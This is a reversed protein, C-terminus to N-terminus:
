NKNVYGLKKLIKGCLIIVVVSLAILSILSILIVLNISTISIINGMFISILSISVLLVSLLIKHFLNFPYCVKILLIFSIAVTSLVALTSFEQSSLVLFSRSFVLIAVNLFVAIGTPLAKQIVNKLFSGRVLEKNPELALLFSPIGISLTSIFTLHIPEFPYSSIAFIFFLSMLASYITKSLFLTASRQLNNISRRGEKLVLPMSSFNSDLLVLNSVTRAADSGSAMAVSCDSEKLALVDNVGDGTMAVTKGKEKLAKVFKLKQEPTVRGFVSHKEIANKIDEDTKLESADIFNDGDKLGAKKAIYSVTVANDGSIIKIDVGQEAFYKLTDPAEKRIKDSLLVLAIPQIEGGIEKNNIQSDSHALLLVRQGHKSFSETQERVLEYNEKLIFEGAGLIYTGRDSFGVACFKRQSSFSIINSATWSTPENFYEKIASFTPNSDQLNKTMASLIERSNKGKELEVIDDVQMSGETITGTKDLCLVDVRALTEICYLDQVLTKHQALRIVSVAFVVSTLLVLGEPIMGILAAATTSTSAYIADGMLFHQKLFLLIGIPIIAISVSKVIKNLSNLIESNPKKIYKADSAIKHAYNNKGIHEAKAKCNGSVVFSGSLIFDGTKKSVPESEGTILSENLEIEGEVIISDSCIQNGTELVLLDDLVVDCVRIQETKGERLVVAKPASIVSLKDIIKKSRIEQFSAIAMNSFIVGMFLMNKLIDFIFVEQWLGVLLLIVAFVLHIINFFTFTNELIIQKITKTKASNDDNHLGQELRIDVQSQM